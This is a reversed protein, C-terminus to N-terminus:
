YVRGDQVDTQESEEDGSLIGRKLGMSLMLLTCNFELYLPQSEFVFYIAFLVFLVWPVASGEDEGWLLISRVYLAGLCALASYGFLSPFVAIASQTSGIGLMGLADSSLCFLAIPFVAIFWRAERRSLLGALSQPKKRDMALFAALALMLVASRRAYLLGFAGAACIVCAVILVIRVASERSSSLAVAALISFLLCAIAGSYEFAYRGLIASKLSFADIEPHVFFSIGIAVVFAAFASIAYVRMAKRLDMEKFVLLFLVLFVLHTDGRQNWVMLASFLLCVLGVTGPLEFDFKKCALVVVLCGLVVADIALLPEVPIAWSIASATSQAFVIEGFVWLGLMVYALNDLSRASPPANLRAIMADRKTSSNDM